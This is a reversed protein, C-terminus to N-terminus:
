LLKKLSSLSINILENPDKYLEYLHVYHKIFKCNTDLGCCKVMLHLEDAIWICAGICNWHLESVFRWISKSHFSMYWLHLELATSTCYFHFSKLPLQVQNFHLRCKIQATYHTLAKQTFVCANWICNWHLLLATFTYHNLHYICKILTYAASSKLLLVRWHKKLSFVHM